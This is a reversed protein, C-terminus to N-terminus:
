DIAINIFDWVMINIDDVLFDDIQEVKEKVEVDDTFKHHIAFEFKEQYYPDIEDMEYHGLSLMTIRKKFMKITEDRDDKISAIQKELTKILDDNNKGKDKQLQKM